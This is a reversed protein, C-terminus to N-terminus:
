AKADISRAIREVLKDTEEKRLTMKHIPRLDDRMWDYVIEKALMLGLTTQAKTM